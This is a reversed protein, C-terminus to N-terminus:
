AFVAATTSAQNLERYIGAPVLVALFALPLSVAFGVITAAAQGEPMANGEVLASAGLGAAAALAFIVIALVFSILALYRVIAWQEDWTLRWSERIAAILNFSRREAMMPTVCSFRAALWLMVVSMVLLVVAIMGSGGVMTAALGVEGTAAGIVMSLVLALALGTAVLAAYLTFFVAFAAALPILLVFTAVLWAGSSGIQGAVVVAVAVLAVGVAMALLGALLGYGLIAGLTDDRNFGRRWSSFYSGTQLVYAVVMVLVAMAGAAPMAGLGSQSMIASTPPGGLRGAVAYQLIYAPLIGLGILIIAHQLMRGSLFRLGYAWAGRGSFLDM